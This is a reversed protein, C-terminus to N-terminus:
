ASQKEGRDLSDVLWSLRPLPEDIGTPNTLYECRLTTVNLAAEVPQSVSAACLMACLFGLSRSDNM